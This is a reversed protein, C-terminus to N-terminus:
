HPTVYATYFFYDGFNGAAKVDKQSLFSQFAPFAKKEIIVLLLVPSKTNLSSFDNIKYVESLLPLHSNIVVRHNMYYSTGTVVVKEITRSQKETKIVSAAYQQFRKEYQWSYEEKKFNRIRNIDFYIGRLMEPIMLM